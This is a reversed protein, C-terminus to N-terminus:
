RSGGSETENTGGHGKGHQHEQWMSQFKQYQQPTLITQLQTDANTKAEVVASQIQQRMQELVAQVNTQQEPTLNLEQTLRQLHDEGRHWRQGDAPANNTQGLVHVQALVIWGAAAAALTSTIVRSNM